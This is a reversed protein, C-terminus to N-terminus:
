ELVLLLVLQGDGVQPGRIVLPSRKTLKAETELLLKEEQFLQLGLQYASKAGSKADVRMSFYKSSTNWDENGTLTHRSQGIVQYQNYGFFEDLTGQLKGLEAPIPTPQPRNNAIV